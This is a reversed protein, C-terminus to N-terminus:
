EGEHVQVPNEMEQQKKMWLQADIEAIYGNVVVQLSINVQLSMQSFITLSM